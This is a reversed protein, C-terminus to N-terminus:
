MDSFAKMAGALDPAAIGDGPLAGNKCANDRVLSLVGKQEPVPQPKAEDPVTVHAVLQGKADYYGSDRPWFTGAQCDFEIDNASFVFPKGAIERPSGSFVLIKALFIGKADPKLADTDVGWGGLPNAFILWQEAMAPATFAGLAGVMLALLGAVRMNM